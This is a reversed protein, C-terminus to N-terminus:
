MRAFSHFYIQTNPDFVDNPNMAQKIKIHLVTSFITLLIQYFEIYLLFGFTPSTQETEYKPKKEKKKKSSSSQAKELKWIM